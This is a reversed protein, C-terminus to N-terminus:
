ECYGFGQLLELTVITVSILYATELSWFTLYPSQSYLLVFSRKLIISINYIKM